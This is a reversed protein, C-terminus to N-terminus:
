RSSVGIDTYDPMREVKDNFSVFLLVTMFFFPVIILTLEGGQIDAFCSTMEKDEGDQRRHVLIQIYM